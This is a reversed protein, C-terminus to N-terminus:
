RKPHACSVCAQEWSRAAFGIDPNDSDHFVALTQGTCNDGEHLYGEITHNRYSRIGQETIPICGPLGNSLIHLSGGWNPNDFTCLQDGEEGDACSLRPAASATTRDAWQMGPIAVQPAASAVPPHIVVLAALMAAALAALFYLRLALEKRSHMVGCGRPARSNHVGSRRPCAMPMDPRRLIGAWWCILCTQRTLMASLGPLRAFAM